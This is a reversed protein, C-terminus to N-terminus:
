CQNALKMGFNCHPGLESRYIPQGDQGTAVEYDRGYGVSPQYAYASYGPEVTYAPEYAYAPYSPEYVYTSYGPEYGYRPEYGYAYGRYYPDHYAAANAVGAGILAGAVFGGAAAAATRGSRAESPTAVAFLMAAALGAAAFKTVNSRTMM